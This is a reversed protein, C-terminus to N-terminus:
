IQREVPQRFLTAPKSKQSRSPGEHVDRNKAVASLRANETRYLLPLPGSAAQM